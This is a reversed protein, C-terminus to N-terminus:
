AAAIALSPARTRPRGVTNPHRPAPVERLGERHQRAREGTTMARGHVVASAARAVLVAAVAVTLLGAILLTSPEGNSAALAVVVLTMLM